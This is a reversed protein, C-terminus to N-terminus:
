AYKQEGFKMSGTSKEIIAAIRGTDFSFSSGDSFFEKYTVWADLINEDNLHELEKEKIRGEFGMGPISRLYIVVTKM